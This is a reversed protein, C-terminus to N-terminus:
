KRSDGFKRKNWEIANEVIRTALYFDVAVVNANKGFEGHYLKSVGLNVKHAMKRLGGYRDTLVDIAEPTLEAMEAFPRSTFGNELSMNKRQERLFKELGTFSEKVKGWRQRVSHFLLTESHEGAVGFHDYAVIIRNGSRWIEGLTTDWGNGPHAAYDGLEQTLFMVLQRHVEISNRFGVPFEQFDLIVIENTSDIFDKVQQLIDRLPHLRSIGHNAWFKHTNSRYYGVRLDLYRIGLTSSPYFKNFLELTIKSFHLYFSLPLKIM